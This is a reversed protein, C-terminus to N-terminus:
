GWSINRTSMETLPLTSELSMTHDSPNHWHFIGIVGDPISGAVKRNTARYRLLHAVMLPGGFQIHMKFIVCYNLQRWCFSGVHNMWQSTCLSRWPSCSPSFCHCILLSPRASFKPKALNIKETKIWDDKIATSLNTLNTNKTNLPQM